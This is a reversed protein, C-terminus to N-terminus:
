NPLAVPLTVTRGTNLERFEGPIVIRGAISRAVVQAEAYVDSVSREGILEVLSRKAAATTTTKKNQLVFYVVVAIVIILIIVAVNLTLM